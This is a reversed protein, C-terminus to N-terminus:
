TTAETRPVEDGLDLEAHKSRVVLRISYRGLCEGCVHEIPESFKFTLTATKPEGRKADPHDVHPEWMRVDLLMGRETEDSNSSWCVFDPNKGETNLDVEIVELDGVQRAFVSSVIPLDCTWSIIM